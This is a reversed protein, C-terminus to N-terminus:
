FSVDDGHKSSDVDLDARSKSEDRQIRGTAHSTKLATKKVDKIVSALQKFEVPFFGYDM